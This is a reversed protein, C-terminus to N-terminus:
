VYPSTPLTLHTYSVAQFGCRSYEEESTTQIPEWHISWETAGNQWTLQDAENIYITVEHWNNTIPQKEYTGVFFSKDVIEPFQQPAVRDGNEDIKYYLECQYGNDLLNHCDKDEVLGGYYLGQFAMM